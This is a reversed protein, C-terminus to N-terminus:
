FPEIRQMAACNKYREVVEYFKSCAAIEQTISALPHTARSSFVRGELILTDIGEDYLLHVFEEAFTIEGGSIEPLVRRMIAVKPTYARLLRRLEPLTNRHIRMTIPHISAHEVCTPLRGLYRHNAEVAVVRRFYRAAAISLLGTCAGFDIATADADPYKAILETIDEHISPMERNAVFANVYQESDFAM